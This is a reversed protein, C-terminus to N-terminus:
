IHPLQEQWTLLHCHHPRAQPIPCRPHPLSILAGGQYGPQVPEMHQGVPQAPVGCEDIGQPVQVIGEGHAEEKGGEWPSALAVHLGNLQAAPESHLEHVVNNGGTGQALHAQSWRAPVGGWAREQGGHDEGLQRREWLDEQGDFANVVLGLHQPLGNHPDSGIGEGM